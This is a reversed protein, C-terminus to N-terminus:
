ESMERKGGGLTGDKERCGNGGDYHSSRMAASEERQRRGRREKAAEHYTTGEGLGVTSYEQREHKGQRHEPIRETEVQEHRLVKTTSRRPRSISVGVVHTM